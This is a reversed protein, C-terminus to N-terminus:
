PLKVPLLFVPAQIVTESGTPIGVLFPFGIYLDYLGKERQLETVSRHLHTLRVSLKQHLEATKDDHPKPLIARPSNSKLCHQLLENGHEKGFPNLVSLDFTWKANLRNLRISRNRSSLNLLRDRLKILEKRQQETLPREEQKVPTQAAPPMPSAPPANKEATGFTVTPEGLIEESANPPPPPGDYPRTGRCRPFRTCGFFYSGANRGSKALRRVM